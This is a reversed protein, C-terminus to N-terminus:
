KHLLVKKMYILALYKLCRTRKVRDKIPKKLKVCATPPQIRTFFKVKIKALTLLKMLFTLLILQYCTSKSNSTPVVRQFSFYAFSIMLNVISLIMNVKVLYVKFKQLYTVPDWFATLLTTLFSTVRKHFINVDAFRPITHSNENASHASIFEPFLSLTESSRCIM